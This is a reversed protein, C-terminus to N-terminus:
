VVDECSVVVDFYCHGSQLQSNHLVFSADLCLESNISVFDYSLLDM